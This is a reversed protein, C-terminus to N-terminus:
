HMGLVGPMPPPPQTLPPYEWADSALQESTAARDSSFTFFRLVGDTTAVLLVPSPKLPGKEPNPDDVEVDVCTLDIGLGACWFGRLLRVACCLM